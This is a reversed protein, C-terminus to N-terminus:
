SEEPDEIGFVLPDLAEGTKLFYALLFIIINLQEIEHMFEIKTAEASMLAESAEEQTFLDMMSM